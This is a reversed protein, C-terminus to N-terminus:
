SLSLEKHGSGGEWGERKLESTSRILGRGPSGTWSESSALSSSSSSSIFCALDGGVRVKRGPWQIGPGKGEQFERYFIEDPGERSRPM